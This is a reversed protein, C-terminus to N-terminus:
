DNYFPHLNINSKEILRLDINMPQDIYKSIMDYVDEECCERLLKCRESYGIQKYYRKTKNIHKPFSIVSKNFLSSVIGVHLKVTIASDMNKLLACFDWTASYDVSIKDACLDKYIDLDSIKHKTVNDSGVFVRYENPHEAIYRNLAPLIKQALEKNSENSGYVHFFINKKDAVLEKLSDDLEPLDRKWISLASDTTVYIEKRVGHAKFYEATETDRVSVFKAANMIEVMKKRLFTNSVPGGGVGCIYIPKKEQIFHKAVRFYRFYRILSERLNKTTDGFYGGSMYVLCDAEKYSSFKTSYSAIENKLYKCLGFKPIRLFDVDGYDNLVEYFIHAFLCDGFNSGNTAGHILIKM